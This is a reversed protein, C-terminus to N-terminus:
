AACGSEVAVADTASGRLKMCVLHTPLYILAPLGVLLTALWALPPMWTQAQDGAPGFVYNVNHPQNAFALADGPAPLMTYSILMAAVAVATWGCLARRDYGLQWVMYALLFPLWFHFFSLGRAFSSIAPDFMYGTMGTVPLGCLSGLFDVQWLVQPIAIGVIAMSAWIARESWVGILAFFLAIDCFYLFNTAGYEAWYFPVLVGMFATFGIKVPLPIKRDTMQSIALVPSLSISHAAFVHPLSQSIADRIHADCTGNTELARLPPSNENIGGGDISYIASDYLDGM